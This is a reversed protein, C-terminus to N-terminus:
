IRRNAGGLSRLGGGGEGEKVMEEEGEKKLNVEIRNEKCEGVGLDEEGKRRKGRLWVLLFKGRPETGGTGETIFFFFFFFFFFDRREGGWKVEWIFM